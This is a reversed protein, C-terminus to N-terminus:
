TLGRLRGAKIAERVHRILDDATASSSIHIRVETKPPPGLPALCCPQVLIQQPGRVIGGRHFRKRM